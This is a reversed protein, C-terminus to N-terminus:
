QSAAVLHGSDSMFDVDGGRYSRGSFDTKGGLNALEVALRHQGAQTATQLQGLVAVEEANMEVAFLESSMRLQKACDDCVAAHGLMSEREQASVQGCAISIWEGAEPCLNPGVLSLGDRSEPLTSEQHSAPNEILKEWVRITEEESSYLFRELPDEPNFKKNM